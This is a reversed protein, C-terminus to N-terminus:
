ARVRVLVFVPVTASVLGLLMGLIGGLGGFLCGLSGTLGAVVAASLLFRAEDAAARLAYLGVFGGTAIGGVFCTARLAFADSALPDAGLAGALLPAFFAGLGAILGPTVARGSAGGKWRLGVAVAYLVGGSAITQIPASCALLSAGVLPIVPLTDRLAARIRGWEYARRARHRLARDNTEM